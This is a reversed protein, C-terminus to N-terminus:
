CRTVDPRTIVAAYNISGIMQQYANIEQRTAMGSNKLYIAGNSPSGPSKGTLDVNFKSVLKEIYSDQSLWLKRAYPDRIVRIGLFWEIEDLVHM